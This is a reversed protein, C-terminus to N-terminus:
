VRQSKMWAKGTPNSVPKKILKEIVKIKEGHMKGFDGTESNDVIVMSNKFLSQFKGINQQVQNWMEEVMKTPLTRDRMQNREQAVPLSTNVFVMSTDYGIDELKKKLKAIKDYDKGTGDIIIGLRGAIWLELQKKTLNKAIGRKSEPGSTYKEFEDPSMKMLDSSKLGDKGLMFEFMVDSNLVKLGLSSTRSSINDDIGFIRKAAYSKGSGPGGALFVAKLINPDNIGEAIFQEFTKVLM